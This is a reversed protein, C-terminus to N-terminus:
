WDAPIGEPYEGRIEWALRMSTEAGFVTRIADLQRRVTRLSTGTQTAITEHKLEEKIALRVILKQMATLQDGRRGDKVAHGEPNPQTFFPVARQWAQEFILRHFEVIAPESIVVAVDPHAHDVPHLVTDDILFVRAYLEDATRVEAGADTVARVYDRTHPHRRAPSQYLTRRKVGRRLLALDAPFSDDLTEKRREPGPQVVFVHSKAAASLALVLQGIAAKGDVYRVTSTDASWKRSERYARTLPGYQEPLRSTELWAQRARREAQIAATEPDVPLWMDPDDETTRLLGAGLLEDFVPRPPFDPSVEEGGGPSHRLGGHRVAWLFADAAEKSLGEPSTPQGTV